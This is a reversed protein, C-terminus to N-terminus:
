TSPPDVNVPAAEPTTPRFAYLGPADQQTSLYYLLRDSQNDSPIGDRKPLKSANGIAGGNTSTETASGEAQATDTKKPSCSALVSLSLAPALLILRKM